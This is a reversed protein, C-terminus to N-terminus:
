STAAVNGSDLPGTEQRRVDRLRRLVEMYYEENINQNQLAYQYHVVGRSDFLFILMVKVNSRVQRANEAEPINLTEVTVTAGQKGPRVWLGM